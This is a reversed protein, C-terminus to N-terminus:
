LDLLNTEGSPADSLRITEIKFENRESDYVLTLLMRTGCKGCRVRKDYNNRRAVLRIGCPCAFPLQPPPDPSVGDLLGDTTAAPRPRTGSQVEAAHTGGTTMGDDLYVPCLVDLGTRRDTTFSAIFKRGCSPCSCRKENLRTSLRLLGGCLCVMDQVSAPTPGPPANPLPPSMGGPSPPPAEGRARQTAERALRRIDRRGRANRM